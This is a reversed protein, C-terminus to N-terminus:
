KGPRLNKSLQMAQNVHNLIKKVHEYAGVTSKSARTKREFNKASQLATALDKMLGRVESNTPGGVAEDLELLDRMADSM